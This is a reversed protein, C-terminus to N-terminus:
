YPPREIRGCSSTWHPKARECQEKSTFLDTSLTATPCKKPDDCGYLRWAQTVCVFKEKPAAIHSPSALMGDRHNECAQISPFTQKQSESICGGATMCLLLFYEM